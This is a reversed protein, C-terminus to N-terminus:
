RPLRMSWLRPDTAKDVVSRLKRIRSNHRATSTLRWDLAKQRTETRVANTEENALQWVRERLVGIVDGIQPCSMGENLLRFAERRM